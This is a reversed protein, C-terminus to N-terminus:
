EVRIEYLDLIVGTGETINDAGNYNTSLSYYYGTANRKLLYKVHLKKILDNIDLLSSTTIFNTIKGTAANNFEARMYLSGRKENTPISSKTNQVLTRTTNDINTKYHYIYFGEAFGEPTSIPNELIFRVPIENANRPLGGGVLINGSGDVLPRLDEGALRSFITMISVLNQNTPKDSDYFSLKLFSNKFRNKQFLIDNDDFNMDSYYTPTIYTGSSNLFNLKITLKNILDGNMLTPTFRTKEYDIIPNISKEVEHSVFDRNVIEAQDVSNFDLSVPIKIYKDFNILQQDTKNTGITNDGFDRVRITYKNVSM